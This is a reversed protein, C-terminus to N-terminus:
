GARQERRPAQRIPRAALFRQLRRMWQRYLTDSM